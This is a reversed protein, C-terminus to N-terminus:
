FVADWNDPQSCDWSVAIVTHFRKGRRINRQLAQGNQSPYFMHRDPIRELSSIKVATSMNAFIRVDQAGNFYCIRLPSPHSDSKMSSCKHIPPQSGPKARKVQPFLNMGDVPFLASGKKRQMGVQPCLHSSPLPASLLGRHRQSSQAATQSMGQVAGM